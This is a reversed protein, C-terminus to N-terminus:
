ERHKAELNMPKWIGSSIRLRSPEVIPIAMPMAEMAAMHSMGGMADVPLRWQPLLLLCIDVQLGQEDHNSNQHNCAKKRKLATPLMKRSAGSTMTPIQPICAEQCKLTTSLKVNHHCIPKLM